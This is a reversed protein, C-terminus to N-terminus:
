RRVELMKSIEIENMPHRDDRQNQKVDSILDLLENAMTEVTDITTMLYGTHTALVVHDDEFFYYIGNLISEVTYIGINGAHTAKNIINQEGTGFSILPRRGRKM